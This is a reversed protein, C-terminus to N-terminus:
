AMHCYWMCFLKRPWLNWKGGSSLWLLMHPPLIEASEM